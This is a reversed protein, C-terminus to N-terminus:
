LKPPPLTRKNEEKELKRKKRHIFFFSFFGGPEKKGLVSKFFYTEGEGMTRRLDVYPHIYNFGLGRGGGVSCPVSFFFRSPNSQRTM